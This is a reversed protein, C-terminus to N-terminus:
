LRRRMLSVDKTIDTTKKDYDITTQSFVSINALENGINFRARLVSLPTCVERPYTHM